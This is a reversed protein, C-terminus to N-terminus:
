HLSLGRLSFNWLGIVASISHMKRLTLHAPKWYFTQFALPYAKMTVTRAEVSVLLQSTVPDSAEARIKFKPEISQWGEYYVKIVRPDEPLAFEWIRVRLEPPLKPFLTFTTGGHRKASITSSETSM